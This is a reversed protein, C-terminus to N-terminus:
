HITSFNNMQTLLNYCKYLTLITKKISSILIDHINIDLFKLTLDLYLFRNYIKSPLISDEFNINKMTTLINGLSLVLTM